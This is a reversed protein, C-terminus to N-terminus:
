VIKFAYDLEGGMVLIIVQLHTQQRLRRTKFEYFLAAVFLLIQIFILISQLIESISMKM